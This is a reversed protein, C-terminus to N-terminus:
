PQAPCINPGNFEYAGISPPAARPQCDADDVPAGTATGAGKAPSANQLGFNNRAANVFLPNANFNTGGVFPSQNIISHDVVVPPSVTSVANNEGGASAK